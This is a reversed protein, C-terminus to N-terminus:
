LDGERLDMGGRAHKEGDARVKCNLRSPIAEM